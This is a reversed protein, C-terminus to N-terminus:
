HQPRRALVVALTGRQLLGDADLARLEIRVTGSAKGRPGRTDIVYGELRVEADVFVPRYFIWEGVDLMVQVGAGLVEGLLSICKALVLPGHAIRRGFPTTRAFAEDVHVPHHSNLLTAYGAVLEASCVFRTAMIQRGPRADELWLATTSSSM